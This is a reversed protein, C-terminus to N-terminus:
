RRGTVRASSKALAIQLKKGLNGFLGAFGFGDPFGIWFEKAMSRAM